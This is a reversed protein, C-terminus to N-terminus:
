LEIVHIAILVKLVVRIATGFGKQKDCIKLGDVLLYKV